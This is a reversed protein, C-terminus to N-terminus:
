QGAIRQHLQRSLQALREGLQSLEQQASLLEGSAQHQRQTAARQQASFERVDILQGHAMDLEQQQGAIAEALTRTVEANAQLAAGASAVQTVGTAVTAHSEGLVQQVTDATQNSRQSLNRVEDAVVAFGRGQEGARAAEIAANLALLNTQQAIASIMQMSEDIRQNSQRIAQMSAEAENMQSACQQIQRSSDGTQRNLQQMQTASQALQNLVQEVSQDLLQMTEAQQSSDADIAECRQRVGALTQELQGAMQSLDAASLRVEAVLAELQQEKAAVQQSSSLAEEISQAAEDLALNRQRANFWQAVWVTLLPLLFGSYTNIMQERASLEFVPLEAGSRDLRILWVMFVASIVAWFVGSRPSVLLYAIVILVAPWYIHPSQLGGLQYVLQLGYSYTFLLTINGILEMGLRGSRMLGLVLLMGVGLILSGTALADNGLRGWKIGSYLAILFSLMASFVIIRALVLQSPRTISPPIFFGLFGQQM